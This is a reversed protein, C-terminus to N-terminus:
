LLPRVGSQSPPQRECGRAILGICVLLLLPVLLLVMRDYMLSRGMTRLLFRPIAWPREGAELGSEGLASRQLPTTHDPLRGRVM